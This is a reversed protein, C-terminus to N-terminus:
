ILLVTYVLYYIYQTYCSSLIFWLNVPKEFSGRSVINVKVMTLSFGLFYFNNLTM